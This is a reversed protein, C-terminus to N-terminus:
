KISVWKLAQSEQPFFLLPQPYSDPPIGLYVGEWGIIGTTGDATFVNCISNNDDGGESSIFLVDSNVCGYVHTGNQLQIIGTGSPYVDAAFVATAAVTLFAVLQPFHM